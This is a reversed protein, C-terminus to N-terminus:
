GLGGRAIFEHVQAGALLALAKGGPLDPCDACGEVDVLLNELCADWLVTIHGMFLGVSLWISCAYWSARSRKAASPTSVPAASARKSWTAILMCQQCPSSTPPKSFGPPSSVPPM